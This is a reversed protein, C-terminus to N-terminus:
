FKSHNWTKPKGILHILSKIEDELLWLKTVNIYTQRGFFPGASLGTGASYVFFNSQYSNKAQYDSRLRGVIQKKIKLRFM